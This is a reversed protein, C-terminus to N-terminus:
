HVLPYPENESETGKLSLLDSQTMLGELRIFSTLGSEYYEIIDRVISRVQEFQEPSLSELFSIQDSTLAKKLGM